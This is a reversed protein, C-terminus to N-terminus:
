RRRVDALDESLIGPVEAWSVTGMEDVLDALVLLLAACHGNQPHVAAARLSERLRRLHDVLDGLGGERAHSLFSRVEQAGKNHFMQFLNVVTAWYAAWARRAERMGPADEERLSCLSFLAELGMVGLGFHDMRALYQQQFGANPHSAVYKFGFGFAMWAAPTWYRPDGALNSNRWQQNWNSSRVALGFDILAFRAAESGAGPALEMLVNHASVDRHFAIPRLAHFVCSLQSLLERVLTCTPRLDWQGQQGGPFQGDILRAIDATKHDEDSIGYIWRDFAGGPVCSMALRVVGGASAGRRRAVTHAVYRPVHDRLHSNAATLMQLLDAEFTAVALSAEDKCGIVKVAVDADSDQERARWVIGFAGCGLVDLFQFQRGGVDHVEGSGEAPKSPQERQAEESVAIFAARAPSGFGKQLCRTPSLTLSRRM